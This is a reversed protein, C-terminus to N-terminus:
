LTRVCFGYILYIFLVKYDLCSVNERLNINHSKFFQHIIRYGMITGIYMNSLTGIECYSSVSHEVNKILLRCRIFCLFHDVVHECLFLLCTNLCAFVNVYTDIDVVDSDSCVNVM